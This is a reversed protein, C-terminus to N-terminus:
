RYEEDQDVYGVEASVYRLGDSGITHTVPDHVSQDTCFQAWMEETSLKNNAIIIHPEGVENRGNWVVRAIVGKSSKLADGSKIWYEGHSKMHTLSYYGLWTAIDTRDYSYPLEITLKAM